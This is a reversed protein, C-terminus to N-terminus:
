SRTPPPSSMATKSIAPDTEPEGVDSFDFDDVADDHRSMHQLSKSFEDEKRAWPALGLMARPGQSGDSEAESLEDAIPQEDAIPEMGADAAALNPAVGEVPRPLALATALFQPM